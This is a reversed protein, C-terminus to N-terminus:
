WSRASCRRPRIGAALDPSLLAEGFALERTYIAAVTARAPTGDGLVVRVRDGVTPVPATPV